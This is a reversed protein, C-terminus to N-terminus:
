REPESPDVPALDAALRARDVKGSPTLPFDGRVYWRRPRGAGLDIAAHRAPGLDAEDTVVGVVVAGLTPHPAGVVALGGRVAPRIRREVDAILVTVGGTTIAEPRGGVVLRDGELRGRDGVTAFGDPDIRLPGAGPGAASPGGAGGGEPLHPTAVDSVPTDSDSGDLTRISPAAPPLRPTPSTRLYGAALYPSRVWIEDARVEIEVGPFPRLDERDLGWAVFSLEAAGYYHAV